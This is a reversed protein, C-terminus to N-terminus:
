PTPASSDVTRKPEMEANLEAGLLVAFSGLYFWMLLLMVGGLAGYTRGYSGFNQVYLSFLVSGGLWLTAALASGWSVWRWRSEARCPAYRYIVELALEAFCWLLVWRLTLAIEKTFQAFPLAGLVYPVAIGLGVLLLFGALGGFTFLMAMALLRFFGRREPEHYAVNTATALAWMGQASSYITVLLSITAGVGLTTYSRGTLNQLSRQILNAAEHPLIAYFPKIQATVSSPSAFYGYISFLVILAPFLAFMTNFAIGAAILTLNDEGVRHLVRLLIDRWSRRPIESSREAGGKSDRQRDERVAGHKREHERSVTM